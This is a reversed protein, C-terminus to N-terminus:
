KRPYRELPTLFWVSRPQLFDRNSFSRTTRDIGCSCIVVCVFNRLCSAIRVRSPFILILSSSLHVRSGMMFSPCIHCVHITDTINYEHHRWWISVNYAKSAMQAPFEGTGPSNGACLGTVRRNSTKKSRCGFLRSLLCHHHQRNSVGDHGNHRWRLPLVM